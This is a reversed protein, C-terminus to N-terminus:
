AWPHWGAPWGPLQGALWPCCFGSALAGVMYKKVQMDARDGCLGHEGAPWRLTKNRSIVKVGAAGPLRNRPHPALRPSAPRGPGPWAFRGPRAFPSRWASGALEGGAFKEHAQYDTDPWKDFKYSHYNRSMPRIMLGHQESPQVAALLMGLALLVRSARTRTGQVM